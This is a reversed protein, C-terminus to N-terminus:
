CYTNFCNGSSYLWEFTEADLQISDAPTTALKELFKLNQEGIFDKIVKSSPIIIEMNPPVTLIADKSDDIEKLRNGDKKYFANQEKSPIVLCEQCSDEIEKGLTRALILLSRIPKKDCNVLNCKEIEDRLTSWQFPQQENKIAMLLFHTNSCCYLLNPGHSQPGPIGFSDTRLLQSIVWPWALAPVKAKLPNAKVLSKRKAALEQQKKKIAPLCSVPNAVDFMIAQQNLSSKSFMAPFLSGWTQEKEKIKAAFVYYFIRYVLDELVNGRDIFRAYPALPALIPVIVSKANTCIRQMLVPPIVLRVINEDEAHRETWVSIYSLIEYLVMKEKKHGLEITFETNLNIPVNLSALLVLKELVRELDATIGYLNAEDVVKAKNLGTSIGKDIAEEDNLSLKLKYIVCLCRHVWRGIGGTLFSCRECLYSVLDKPLKCREMLAARLSVKKGNDMGVVTNEIIVSIDDATLPNVTILSVQIPYTYSQKKGILTIIPSKSCVLTYTRSMTISISQWFRYLRDLRVTLQAEKSHIWTSDHSFEWNEIANIQDWIIFLPFRDHNWLIMQKVYTKPSLKQVRYLEEMLEQKGTLHVGLDFTALLTEEFTSADVAIALDMFIQTAEKFRIVDAPDIKDQLVEWGTKNNEYENSLVERCKVALNSKGGGFMQALVVLTTQDVISTGINAILIRAIQMSEEM